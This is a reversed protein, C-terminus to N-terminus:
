QKIKQSRKSITVVTLPDSRDMVVTASANKTFSRNSLKIIGITIRLYVYDKHPCATHVTYDLNQFAAIPMKKQSWTKLNCLEISINDM